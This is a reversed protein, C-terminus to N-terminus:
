VDTNKLKQKLGELGGEVEKFKLSVEDIQPTILYRVEWASIKVRELSNSDSDFAFDDSEFLDLFDWYGINKFFNISKKRKTIFGKDEAISYISVPIYRPWSILLKIIVYLISIDM